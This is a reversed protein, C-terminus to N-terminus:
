LWEGVATTLAAVTQASWVTMGGDTHVSGSQEWYSGLPRDEYSPALTVPQGARSRFAPAPVAAFIEM